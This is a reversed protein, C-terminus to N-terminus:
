YDDDRDENLWEYAERMDNIRKFEPTWDYWLAQALPEVFLNKLGSDFDEDLIKDYLDITEEAEIADLEANTPRRQPKQM